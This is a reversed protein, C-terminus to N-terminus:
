QHQSHDVKEETKKPATKRTEKKNTPNMDHGSHDTGGYAKLKKIDESNAKITNNAVKKTELATGVKLYDRAMEIGHQHHMTMMMAFEKDIDGGHDMDMNMNISKMMKDMQQKGFDSEKSGPQHNSLFSNLDNIDKQSDDIIKQAVQKSEANTGKSLEINAMDIAGQHHSKMMMAFDHDPDNTMKMNHMDQMMKDMVEKFSGTGANGNTNMSNGSAPASAAHSQESTSSDSATGASSNSSDGCSALITVTLCLVLIQKM